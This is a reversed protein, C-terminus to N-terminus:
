KGAKEKRWGEGVNAIFVTSRLTWVGALDPPQGKGDLRGIVIQTSSVVVQVNGHVEAIATLLPRLIHVMTLAPSVLRRVCEVNFQSERNEEILNSRDLKARREGSSHAAVVPVHSGHRDPCHAILYVFDDSGVSEHPERSIVFGKRKRDPDRPGSLGTLCGPKLKTDCGAAIVQSSVYVIEVDSNAETTAVALGRSVYISTAIPRVSRRMDFGDRQIV